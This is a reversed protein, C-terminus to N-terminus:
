GVEIGYRAALMHLAATDTRRGFWAPALVSQWDSESVTDLLAYFLEHDSM